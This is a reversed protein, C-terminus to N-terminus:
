STEGDKGKANTTDHYLKIKDNLVSNTEILNEYRNYESM